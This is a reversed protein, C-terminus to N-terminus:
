RATIWTPDVRVRMGDALKSVGATVVLEGGELGALVQFGAGTLEGVEVEREEVRGTGGGEDRLVFVFRRGQRDEGVSASPVLAVERSEPGDVLFTVNAAMGSRVGPVEDDLRATVTFTGAGRDTAVGVQVVHAPFTRGPLADFAVRVLDGRRVASIVSEPLAAEVEARTGSNLVVVPTGAGVNEGPEVLVEAVAGDAPAALRTYALALRAQELAAQASAVAADATRTAARAGDVDAISANDNEYLGEVRDRDANARALQAEAQRLSASAADIALTYDREDLRGILDGAAVASGVEVALEEVTGRVKFSLRSETGPRATGSFVRERASSGVVVTTARVPRLPEPEAREPEGCAALLGAAALVAARM